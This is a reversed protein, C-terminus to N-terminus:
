IENNKLFAVLASQVLEATQKAMVFRCYDRPQEPCDLIAEIRLMIQRGYSCQDLIELISLYRNNEALRVQLQRRVTRGNKVIDPLDFTYM